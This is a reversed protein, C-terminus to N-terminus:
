FVAIVVPYTYPVVSLVITVHRENESVVATNVTCLSDNGFTGYRGKDIEDVLM